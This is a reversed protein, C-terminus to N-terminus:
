KYVDFMNYTNIPYLTVDLEDCEPIDVGFHRIFRAKTGNTPLKVVCQSQTTNNHCKATYKNKIFYYDPSYEPNNYLCKEVDINKNINCANCKCNTSCNTNCKTNCGTNYATNCTVQGCKSDCCIPLCGYNPGPKFVPLYVRKCSPKNPKQICNIQINCNSNNYCQDEEDEDFRFYTNSKM